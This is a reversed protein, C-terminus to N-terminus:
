YLNGKIHGGFCHMNCILTVTLLTPPKWNWLWDIATIPHNNFQVKIINQLALPKDVVMHVMEAMDVV